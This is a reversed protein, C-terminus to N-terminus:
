EYTNKSTNYIYVFYLYLVTYICMFKFYFISFIYMLFICIDFHHIVRM